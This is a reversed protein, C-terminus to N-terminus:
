LLPAAMLAVGEVIERTKGVAAVGHTSEAMLDTIWTEMESFGPDGIVVLMVEYNLFLSRDDLNASGVWASSDDVLAAKAHLMAKPFQLITGGADQIDRLRPGRAWDAIPHNSVTPVVVRVDVDRRAALCLAQTFADPPVFYPTVLWIRKRAMHLSAILSGYLPDGPIDPGSPVVQVTQEADPPSAVPQVVAPAIGCAFAWDLEFIEAYSQVAPGELVFTLDRWRGPTPKPGIYEIATNAGGAWVRQGDAITIKRHNRLNTRGRFPRRLVPMFYAIRGGAELLPALFDRGVHLCGVGDLLLRVDIGDAARRSLRDVVADGVTDTALFYTAYALNETAGDILDMLARHGQVGDRNLTLRNGRTAPPIGYSQLLRDIEGAEGPIAVVSSLRVDAKSRALAAMRRGGFMLYLPVGLWPFSVIFLLWAIMGQPTRRQTLMHTIALVALLFGIIILVNSALWEM